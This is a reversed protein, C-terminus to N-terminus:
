YFCLSVQPAREDSEDLTRFYMSDARFKLGQMVIVYHFKDTITHPRPSYQSFFIVKKTNKITFVGRNM